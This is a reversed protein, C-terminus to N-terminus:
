RNLSSLSIQVERERVFMILFVGKEGLWSVSLCVKKGVFLCIVVSKRVIEFVIECIRDNVVLFKM